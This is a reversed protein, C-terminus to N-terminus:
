IVEPSSWQHEESLRERVVTGAGLALPIMPSIRRIFMQQATQSLITQDWEGALKGLKQPMMPLLPQRM